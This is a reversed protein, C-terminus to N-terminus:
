PSKVIGVKQSNTFLAAIVTDTPMSTQAGAELEKPCMVLLPIAPDHPLETQSKPFGGCQKGYHRPWKADGGAMSSPELKEM